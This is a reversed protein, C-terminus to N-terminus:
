QDKGLCIMSVSVKIKTAGGEPRLETKNIAHDYVDQGNRKGEKFLPSQIEM